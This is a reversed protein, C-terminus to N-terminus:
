QVAIQPEATNRRTHYDCDECTNRHRYCGLFQKSDYVTKGNTQTTIKYKITTRIKIDCHCRKTSNGTILWQYCETKQSGTYEYNYVLLKQVYWTFQKHSNWIYLKPATPSLSSTIKLDFDVTSTVVFGFITLFHMNPIEFIMGEFKM